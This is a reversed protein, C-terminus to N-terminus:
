TERLAQQDGNDCLLSSPTRMSLVLSWRFLFRSAAPSCTRDKPNREECRSHLLADVFFMADVILADLMNGTILHEVQPASISIEIIPSCTHECPESSRLLGVWSDERIAQLDWAIEVGAIRLYAVRM